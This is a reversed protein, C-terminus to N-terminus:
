SGPLRLTDRQPSGAMIGGDVPLVAGTIHAAEQSVLFLVAAAVAEPTIRFDIESGGAAKHEVLRRALEEPSPEPRGRLTRATVVPGPAVANCRINDALGELAISKTLGVIAHKAAIYSHRLPRGRLGALSTINVIAGGGARKMYPIAHKSCLFCGKAHVDLMRDWDSEALDDIAAVTPPIGANNILIDVRGLREAVNKIAASVEAEVSVDCRLQLMGDVEGPRTDLVAVSAGQMVFRQAIVAGIGAGGGTVIATRGTLM